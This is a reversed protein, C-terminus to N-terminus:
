PRNARKSDLRAKRESTRVDVKELAKILKNKLVALWTLHPNKRIDVELNIILRQIESPRLSIYM